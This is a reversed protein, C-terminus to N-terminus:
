VVVVVTSCRKPRNYAKLDGGSCKVNRLIGRWEDNMMEDDILM